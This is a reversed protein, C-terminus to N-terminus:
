PEVEEGYIAERMQRLGEEDQAAARGAGGTAIFHNFIVEELGQAEIHSISVLTMADRKGDPGVQHSPVLAFAENDYALAMRGTGEASVTVDIGLVTNQVFAVHNCGCMSAMLAAAAFM